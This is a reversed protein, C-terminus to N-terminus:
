KNFKKEFLKMYIGHVRIMQLGMLQQKSGVCRLPRNYITYTPMPVPLIDFFILMIKITTRTKAAM